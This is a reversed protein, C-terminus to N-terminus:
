VFDNLKKEIKIVFEKRTGFHSKKELVEIISNKYKETEDVVFLYKKCNFKKLCIDIWEDCSKEVEDNKENWHEKGGYPPCTFLADYTEMSFDSLIDRIEVSLSTPNKLYNLIEKSEEIHAKNIDFGFYEKGSKYCGLMRGSFGSFPDCITRLESLFEDILEKALTPSFTSVKPAKLTVNFGQIIDRPSCHGVYKLRNLAIEKVLNKDKWAELPSMKGKRYASYISKHFHHILGLDSKDSLNENPYPFETHLNFLNVYDKTFKEDVESIINQMEESDTLIVRVNNEKMCEFKVDWKAQHWKWVSEEQNRYPYFLKGDKFLHSGKIEINEEDICFDCFYICDKGEFQFHFEKDRQVSKKLIEKDYIYFYLEYKSDFVENDYSYLHRIKSHFDSSKSVWDVGYKELCTQRFKEKVEESKFPSDVGFHELCTKRKNNKIIESQSFHEVGYRELCTQRTKEKSSEAQLACVTGYRELCTEKKKDSIEKLEEESKNQWTESIKVSNNFYRGYINEMTQRAKERNTYFENGYREKKTEKIKNRVEKSSLPNDVGYKKIWNEKEKERLFGNAWNHRMGYKQLMTNEMKNKFEKIEESSKNKWNNSVSKKWEDSHSHKMQCEKSCTKRKSNILHLKKGCIVCSVPVDTHALYWWFEEESNFFSKFQESNFFSNDNCWKSAESKNKRSFSDGKSKRLFGLSLFKLRTESLFQIVEM